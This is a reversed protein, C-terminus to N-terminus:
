YPQSEDFDYISNRRERMVWRLERMPFSDRAQRYVQRFFSRRVEPGRGVVRLSVLSRGLFRLGYLRRGFSRYSPRGRPAAVHTRLDERRPTKRCISSSNKM